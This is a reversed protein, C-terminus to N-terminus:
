PSAFLWKKFNREINDWSVPAVSPPEDLRLCMDDGNSVFIKANNYQWDNAYFYLYSIM